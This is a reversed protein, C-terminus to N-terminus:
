RTLTKGLRENLDCDESKGERLALVEGALFLSGAILLPAKAARRDRQWWDAVSDYITAPIGPFFAALSNPDCSRENQLRVLSVEAALPALVSAVKAVEKDIVAGFVLHTAAATESRYTSTLFVKWTEALRRAGDPNHAGDLVTLPTRSIIEFRGPWQTNKLGFALSDEQVVRLARLAAVACAANQVQHAGRLGLEYETGGILARQDEGRFGLDQAPLDDPVIMAACGEREAREVIVRRAAGKTSTIVPVDPKIIGAKEGAIQELTEGLYQQHDLGVQTIICIGPRVLNTADLRGGMGTEWVVWDIEERAFHWLALATLIEFFTAHSPLTEEMVERVSTMGAAFDEESIPHRDIQIRERVCILHPSTYLGVRHGAARLCSECFAATSGKGNTGAIHIFRLRQQPNDLAQAIKEMPELGLKMGFRRAGGLFDVSERYTM